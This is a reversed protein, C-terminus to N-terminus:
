GTTHDLATGQVLETITRIADQQTVNKTSRQYQQTNQRREMRASSNIYSDGSMMYHDSLKIIPLVPTLIRPNLYLITVLVWQTCCIQIKHTQTYIYMYQCCWLMFYVQPVIVICDSSSVADYCLGCTHKITHWCQCSYISPYFDLYIM